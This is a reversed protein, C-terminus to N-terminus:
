TVDPDLWVELRRRGYLCVGSIDVTSDAPGVVETWGGKM